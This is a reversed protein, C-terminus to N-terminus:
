LFYLYFQCKQFNEQLVPLFLFISFILLESDTLACRASEVLLGQGSAWSEPSRPQRGKSWTFSHKEPCEIGEVNSLNTSIVTAEQGWSGEMWVQLEGEKPREGLETELRLCM